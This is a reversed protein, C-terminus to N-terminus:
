RTERRRDRRPPCHRDWARGFAERDGAQGARFIETLTAHNCGACEQSVPELFLPGNFDAPRTAGCTKCPGDRLCDHRPGPEPEFLSLQTDTMYTM